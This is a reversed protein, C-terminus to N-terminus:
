VHDVEVIRQEQNAREAALVIQLCQWGDEITPSKSEGQAVAEVFRGIARPFSAERLPSRLKERFGNGPLFSALRNFLLQARIESPARSTRALRESFYRDYLLKGSEGFIEIRDEEVSALSVFSQVVIGSELTITLMASDDETRQSRIWCGVTAIEADFLFRILDIHHSALDLLAGGGTDRSKKWAPLEDAALGFTTRVAVVSGAKEETLAARLEQVVPNLRYNFGVMGPVRAQKWADVIRRGDSRNTALPKEVYVALGVELAAVALDAHTAPPTAILVGDPSASSILDELSALCPVGSFVQAAHQRRSADPEVVGVLEAKSGLGRIAPGYVTRALDGYGLIALKIM